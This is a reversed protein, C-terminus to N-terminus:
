WRENDRHDYMYDDYDEHAGCGCEICIGDDDLEGGCEPCDDSGTLHPDNPNTGDPYNEDIM